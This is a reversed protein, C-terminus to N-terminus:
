VDGELAERETILRFMTDTEIPLTRVPFSACQSLASTFAAPLVTYAADEIQKPSGGNKLFSISIKGPDLKDHLVFSSLMDQITRRVTTEAQKVSLIEGGDVAFWIGRITERLTFPELEIEM